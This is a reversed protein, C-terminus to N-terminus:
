DHKVTENLDDVAEGVKDQMECPGSRTEIIFRLLSM